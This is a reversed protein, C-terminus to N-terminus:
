QSLEEADGIFRIELPERRNGREKRRLEARLNEIRTRKEEDDLVPRLMRIEKIDRMVSGAYHLDRMDRCRDMMRLVRELLIQSAEYLDETRCPTEEPPAFEPLALQVASGQGAQEPAPVRLAKRDAAWGAQRARNKLTNYNVGHADALARLTMTGTIFEERLAKWDQM